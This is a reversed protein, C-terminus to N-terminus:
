FGNEKKWKKYDEEKDSDQKIKESIQKLAKIEVETFPKSDNEKKNKNGIEHQHNMFYQCRDEHYQYFWSLVDPMNISYNIKGYEGRKAKKFIYAVEVISLNWYLTIIELAIEKVQYETLKTHVNLSLGLAILHAEIVSLVTDEGYHKRCASLSDNEVKIAEVMSNVNRFEKLMNKPNFKEVFDKKDYKILDNAM